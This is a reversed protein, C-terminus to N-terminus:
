KLLLDVLVRVENLADAEAKALASASRGAEYRQNFWRGFHRDVIAAVKRVDEETAKDKARRFATWVVSIREHVPKHM